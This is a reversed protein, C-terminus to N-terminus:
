LYNKLAPMERVNHVGPNRVHPIAIGDGVGTSGMAERALRPKCTSNRESRALVEYVAGAVRDLEWSAPLWARIVKIGRRKGRRMPEQSAVQITPSRGSTLCCIRAMECLWKRWEKRTQSVRKTM